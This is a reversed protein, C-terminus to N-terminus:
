GRDKQDIAKQLDQYIQRAEVSLGDLHQPVSADLEPTSVLTADAIMGHNHAVSKLAMHLRPSRKVSSNLAQLLAPRALVYRLGVGLVRRPANKLGRVFAGPAVRVSHITWRLPATIRWSTSRTLSQVASDIECSKLWFEHAKALAIDRQERAQQLEAEVHALQDQLTPLQFKEFVQDRQQRVQQFEVKIDGLQEQLAPIQLKGLAEDRQQRGELFEAKIHLLQQQMAPLHFKEFAEDHRQRDLQLEARIHDLQEQLAPLHVKEFVENGQERVEQLEARIYVLHEELAPLQLKDLADDRQENVRQLEAKFQIFQEQLAPLHYKEFAEDSQQRVQQLEAKIDVLQEQLEPLHLNDFAEQTRQQLQQEYRQALSELSVGYGRDFCADFIGLQEPTSAKQAVVAYDPSAGGLVDMLTLHKSEHLTPDEQLRLVKTRSFGSYETLFNLLDLPLPREHTPDLFFSSTGVVLNEANPTEMILLGAPKLVRLAESVLKQVDDFPIHEVLHFASVIVQSNDELAALASLADGHEANLDLARCADLMGDDLDVGRASFGQSQLLELWEGRGCGLDLAPCSSYLTKLPNAFPLYAELRKSILERSGRHRDEFARYFTMSM